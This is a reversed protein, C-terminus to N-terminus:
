RWAGTSQWDKWETSDKVVFGPDLEEITRAAPLPPRDYGDQERPSSTVSYYPLCLSIESM